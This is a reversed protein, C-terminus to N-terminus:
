ISTHASPSLPFSSISARLRDSQVLHMHMRVKVSVREREREWVCVCVVATGRRVCVEPELWGGLKHDHPFIYKQFLSRLM